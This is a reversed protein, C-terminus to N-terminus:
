VKSRRQCSGGQNELFACRCFGDPKVIEGGVTEAEVVLARRNLRVVNGINQGFPRVALFARVAVAHRNLFDFLVIPTKGSATVLGHGGFGHVM